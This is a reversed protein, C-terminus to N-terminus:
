LKIFRSAIFALVAIAIWSLASKVIDDWRAEIKRSPAQQLSTIQGALAQIMGELKSMGKEMASELKELADERSKDREILAAMSADQASTKIYLEGVDNRLREIDKELSDHRECVAM